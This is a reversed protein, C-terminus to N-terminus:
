AAVGVPDDDDPDTLEDDPLLEAPDFGNDPGYARILYSPDPHDNVVLGMMYDLEDNTPAEGASEAAVIVAAAYAIPACEASTRGYRSCPVALEPGEATLFEWAALYEPTLWVASPEPDILDADDSTAPRRTPRWGAVLVAVAVVAAVLAVTLIFALAYAITTM